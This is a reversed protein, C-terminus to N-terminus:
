PSAALQGLPASGALIGANWMPIHPNSKKNQNKGQCSGALASGVLCCHHSLDSSGQWSLPVGANFEQNRAEAQACGQRNHTSSSHALWLCCEEKKGERDKQSNFFFHKLEHFFNPHFDELMTEITFANWKLAMSRSGPKGNRGELSHSHSLPPQEYFGPSTFQLMLPKLVLCPLM